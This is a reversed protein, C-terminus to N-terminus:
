DSDLLCDLVARGNRKWCALKWSSLEPMASRNAPIRIAIPSRSVSKLCPSRKEAASEDSLWVQGPAFPSIM